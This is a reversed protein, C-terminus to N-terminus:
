TLLAEIKHSKIQQHFLVGQILFTKINNLIAFVKLCREHVHAGLKEERFEITLPLFWDIFKYFTETPLTCNSTSCWSNKGTRQMYEQTLQRVDINYVKKLSYYFHPTAGLFLPGSMTFVVYGIMGSTRSVVDLNKEYFDSSLDVDYELISVYKSKIINNKALAYWATFSVLYKYKEINDPLNRCIIVKENNLIKDIPKDGVFLYRYNPLVRFKNSQESQLIIEQDHCVIYVELDM